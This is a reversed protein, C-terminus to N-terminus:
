RLQAPDAAPPRRRAAGQALGLRLDGLEGRDPARVGLDGRLERDAGLGDFPVEGLDVALEVHARAGLQRRRERRPGARDALLDPGGAPQQALPRRKAELAHLGGWEGGGREGRQRDGGRGGRDLGRRRPDRRALERGLVVAAEPLEAALDGLAVEGTDPREALVERAGDIRARVLAGDALLLEELADDAHGGAREGAEARLELLRRRPSSPEPALTASSIRLGRSKALGSAAPAGSGSSSIGTLGDRIIWKKSGDFSFIAAFSGSMAAFVSMRSPLRSSATGASRLSAARSPSTRTPRSTSRPPVASHVRTFASSDGQTSSSRSRRTPSIPSRRSTIMTGFTSPAHSM